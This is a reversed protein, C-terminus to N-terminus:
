STAAADSHPVTVSASLAFCQRATLARRPQPLARARLWRSPAPELAAAAALTASVYMYKYIYIKKTVTQESETENLDLPPRRIMEACSEIPFLV